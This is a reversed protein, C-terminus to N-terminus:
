TGWCLHGLCPVPNGRTPNLQPLLPFPAHGGQSSAGQTVDSNIQGTHMTHRDTSVSRVSPCPCRSSAEEASSSSGSPDPQLGPSRGGRQSHDPQATVVLTHEPPPPSLSEACGTPVKCSPLRSRSLGTAGPLHACLRAPTCPPTPHLGPKMRPNMAMVHAWCRQSVCAAAKSEHRCSRQLLLLAGCQFHANSIFGTDKVPLGRPSPPASPFPLAM